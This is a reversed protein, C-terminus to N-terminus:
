EIPDIRRQELAITNTKTRCARGQGLRIAWLKTGLQARRDSAGCLKLHIRWQRLLQHLRFPRERIGMSIGDTGEERLSVQRSLCNKEHSKMPLRHQVPWLLAPGQLKAIARTQGLQRSNVDNVIEAGGINQGPPLPSRQHRKIMRGQHRCSPHRARHGHDVNAPDGINGPHPLIPQQGKVRSRSIGGQIIPGQTMSAPGEILIRAKGPGPTNMLRYHFRHQLMAKKRAPRGFREIAHIKTHAAHLVEVGGIARRCQGGKRRGRDRARLRM